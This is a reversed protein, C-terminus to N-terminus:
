RKKLMKHMKLFTMLRLISDIGSNKDDDPSNIEDDIIKLFKKLKENDPFKKLGKIVVERTEHLWDHVYYAIGMNTYLTYDENCSKKIAEKAIELMETKFDMELYACFLGNYIDSEWFGRYILSKFFRAAIEPYGINLHCYGMKTLYMPNDPCKTLIYDLIHMADEYFHMAYLSVAKNFLIDNDEPALLLAMNAMNYYDIAKQHNNIDAYLLGMANLLSASRPFKKLGKNVIKKAKDCYGMASFARGIGLYKQEGHTKWSLSKYLALGKEYKGADLLAWARKARIDAKIIKLEALASELEAKTDEVFGKFEDTLCCGPNEELYKQFFYLNERIDKIEQYAETLINM